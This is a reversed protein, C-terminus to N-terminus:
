FSEKGPSDSLAFVVGLAQNIYDEVMGAFSNGGDYVTKLVMSVNKIYEYMDPSKSVLKMDSKNVFNIAYNGNGEKDYIIDWEPGVLLKEDYEDFYEITWPTSTFKSM